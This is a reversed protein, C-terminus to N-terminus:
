LSFVIWTILLALGLVTIVVPGIYIRQSTHKTALSQMTEQEGTDSIVIPKVSHAIPTNPLMNSASLTAQQQHSTQHQTQDGSGIDSFDPDDHRFERARERQRERGVVVQEYTKKIDRGILSDKVIKILGSRDIKNTEYLRKVSIGEVRLREAQKLLEPTSLEEIKKIVKPQIETNNPQAQATEPRPKIVETQAQMYAPGTERSPLQTPTSPKAEATPSPPQQAVSESKKELPLVASEFVARRLSEQRNTLHQRTEQLEKTIRQVEPQLRKETRKRGGRRGIMYGIAAGLVIDSSDGSEQSTEQQPARRFTPTETRFTAAPTPSIAASRTPTFSGGGSATTSIPAVPGLQADKDLSKEQSPQASEPQPSTTPSEQLMEQETAAEPESMGQQQRTIIESLDLLEVESMRRDYEADIEPTTETEPDDLKRDLAEIAALQIIANTHAPTGPEATEIQSEFELREAALDEKIIEHKRAEVLKEVPSKPRKKEAQQEQKDKPKESKKKQKEETKEGDKEKPEDAETKSRRGKELTSRAFAGISSAAKESKEEDSKPLSGFNEPFNVM